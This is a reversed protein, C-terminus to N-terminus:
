NDFDFDVEHIIILGIKKKKLNSFLFLINKRRTDDLMIM